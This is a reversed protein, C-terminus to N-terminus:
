EQEGAGDHEPRVGQAEWLRRYLGTEALLEQHTGRQVIRGSDLVVISDADAITELRHSVIVTTTEPAASLLSALGRQVDHETEIDVRATPEDLVLIRPPVYAVRAIALRQQQGGSFTHDEGIVTDVGRPLTRVFQEASATLLAASLLGPDAEPTLAINDAISARLLHSNQGLYGIASRRADRDITELPVGGVHVHGATPDILGVIIRALTTKGAGSPGVIAVRTGQEIRLTIRELIPAGDRGYRVDDLSIDTREPFPETGTKTEGPTDLLDQIATAAGRAMQLSRSNDAIATLPQSISLGLLVVAILAVPSTWGAAVFAAGSAIVVALLTVPSVLQAQLTEPRILPRAWSLFYGVFRRDAARLRSTLTGARGFSRLLPATGLFETIEVSLAGAAAGYGPMKQANVASMRRGIFMAAAVPVALVLLFRVDVVAIAATALVPAAIAATLDTYSHAVLHHMKTVDDAIVTRIGGAPYEQFWSFPARELADALRHRIGHALDADAQHALVDALIRLAVGGALGLAVGVLWRWSTSPTSLLAEALGAVALLGTATAACSLVTLAIAARVRSRVPRILRAVEAPQLRPRSQPAASM